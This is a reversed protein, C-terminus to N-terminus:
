FADVAAFIKDRFAKNQMAVLSKKIEEKPIPQTWDPHERCPSKTCPNCGVVKFFHAAHTFCLGPITTGGSGSASSSSAGGGGAPKLKDAGRKKKQPDEAKGTDPAPRKEQVKPIVVPNGTGRQKYRALNRDGLQAMLCKNGVTTPELEMIKTAADVYQDETMAAAPISSTFVALSALAVSVEEVIFDIPMARFSADANSKLEVVLNHIIPAFLVIGLGRDYFEAMIELARALQDCSTFVQMTFPKDPSWPQWMGIHCWSAVGKDTIEPEGAGFHMEFAKQFNKGTCIAMERLLIPWKLGVTSRFADQQFKSTPGLVSQIREKNGGLMRSIAMTAASSAEGQDTRMSVVMSAPDPPGGSGAGLTAVPPGGPARLQLGAPTFAIYPSLRGWLKSSWRAAGAANACLFGATEDPFDAPSLTVVKDFQDKQAQFVRKLTLPSLQHIQFAGAWKVGNWSTLPFTTRGFCYLVMGVRLKDWTTWSVYQGLPVDERNLADKLSAHDRFIDSGDPTAASANGLDDPSSHASMFILQSHLESAVSRFAFFDPCFNRLNAFILSNFPFPVLHM